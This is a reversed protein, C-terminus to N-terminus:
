IQKLVADVKATLRDYVTPQPQRKFTKRCLQIAKQIPTEQAAKEDFRMKLGVLQLVAANKDGEQLAKSAKEATNAFGLYDFYSPEQPRFIEGFNVMIPTLLPIGKMAELENTASAQFEQKLDKLAVIPNKKAM